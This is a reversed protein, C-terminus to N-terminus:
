CFYLIICRYKFILFYAFFIGPAAIVPLPIDLVITLDQYKPAPPVEIIKQDNVYKSFTESKLYKEQSPKQRVLM